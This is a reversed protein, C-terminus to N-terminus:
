YQLTLHIVTRIKSEGGSEHNQLQQKYGGRGVQRQILPFLIEKYHLQEM